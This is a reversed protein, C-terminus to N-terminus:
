QLASAPRPLLGFHQCFISYVVNKIFHKLGGPFLGTFHFRLGFGSLFM